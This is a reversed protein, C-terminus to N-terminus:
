SGTTCNCEDPGTIHFNNVTGWGGCNKHLVIAGGFFTNVGECVETDEVRLVEINPVEYKM